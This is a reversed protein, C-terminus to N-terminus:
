TPDPEGIAFWVFLAVIVGLVVFIASTQAVVLWGYGTLIGDVELVHKGGRVFSSQPDLSQKWGNIRGVVISLFAISLAVTGGTIAAKLASVRKRMVRRLIPAGILWCCFFSIPLGFIAAYVLLSLGTAATMPISILAWAMLASLNVARVWQKRSFVSWQSM